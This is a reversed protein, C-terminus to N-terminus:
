TSGCVPLRPSLAVKRYSSPFEFIFPFPPQHNQFHYIQLKEEALVLVEEKQRIGDGRWVCKQNLVLGERPVTGMWM